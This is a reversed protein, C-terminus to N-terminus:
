DFNLQLTEWTKHTCYKYRFYLYFTSYKGFDNLLPVSKKENSPLFHHEPQINDVILETHTSLWETADLEQTVGHVTAWWAGQDRSKELCSYQLPNDNGDGPSDEQGLSWVAHRATSMCVTFSQFDMNVPLMKAESALEQKQGHWQLSLIPLHPKLTPSQACNKLPM